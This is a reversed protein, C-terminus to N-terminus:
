SQSTGAAYENLRLLLPSNKRGSSELAKVMAGVSRRLIEEEKEGSTALAQSMRIDLISSQRQSFMKEIEDGLKPNVRAGRLLLRLKATRPFTPQFKQRIKEWLTQFFWLPAKLLNKGATQTWPDVPKFNETLDLIAWEFLLAHWRIGQRILGSQWGNRLAVEILGLYGEKTTSYYNLDSPYWEMSMYALVPIGLVPMEAGVTSYGNLVLDVEEAIDYMSIGDTPWNVKINEPLDILKQQLAKANESLVQSGGKQPFERPHVRIVLFLNKREKFYPILADIWDLQNDFARPGTFKAYGAAQSAVVEDLSSMTAVLFKSDHPVAFFERVSQGKRAPSYTMPAASFLRQFHRVVAEAAYESVPVNKYSNWGRVSESHYPSGILSRDKVLILKSLVESLSRSGQMLYPEIGRLEALKKWVHNVSYASSHVALLDPKEKDFIIEAARLSHLSNELACLYHAWEADNLINNKKKNHILVEMLCIRGVPVGAYTFSLFNERNVGGLLAKIKIYDEPTFVSSIDYGPFHFRDRILKKNANCTNCALRRLEETVDDFKIGWASMCTCYRSFVEGCTVYVIENGREQLASAILSEPFSHEATASHPAFFLIKM